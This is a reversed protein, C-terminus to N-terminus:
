DNNLFKLYSKNNYAVWPKFGQAKFIEYAYDVNKHCDILESLKWGKKLHVTNIQFVGFDITNNKNIGYRDCQRTGNEAKSVALATVADKGFKYAIYEETNMENPLKEKAKAQKIVSHSNSVLKNVPEIVIWNRMYTNLDIKLDFWSGGQNVIPNQIYWQYDKSWKNYSNLGYGIIGATFILVLPFVYLKTRNTFRGRKDRQQKNENQKNNNQNKDKEISEQFEKFKSM